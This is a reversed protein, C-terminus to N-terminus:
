VQFGEFCASFPGTRKSNRPSSKQPCFHARGIFCHVMVGIQNSTAKVSFVNVIKTICSARRTSAKRLEFSSPVVFNLLEGATASEACLEVLLALSKSSARSRSPSLEVALAPVSSSFLASSLAFGEMDVVFGGVSTQSQSCEHIVSRSRLPRSRPRRSLPRGEEEELLFSASFSGLCMAVSIVPSISSLNCRCDTLKTAADELM